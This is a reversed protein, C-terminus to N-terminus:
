RDVTAETGEGLIAVYRDYAFLRDRRRGTFERAVGLEVLADVAASAAPVSLGTTAALDTISRLPRAKLAEHVRLASGARRGTAAEIRSRDLVFLESLRGATDVAGRAAEVVGSAFFELAATPIPAQIM